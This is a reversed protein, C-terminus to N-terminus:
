AVERLPKAEPPGALVEIGGAYILHPADFILRHLLFACAGLDCGRDWATLREARILARDTGLLVRARPGRLLLPQAAPLILDFRPLDPGLSGAALRIGRLVMRRRVVGQLRVMGADRTIVRDGACLYEVPMEGDASLVLTGTGLGSAGLPSSRSCVTKARQPATMDQKM